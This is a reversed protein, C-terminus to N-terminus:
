PGAVLLLTGESSHDATWGRIGEYDAYWWCLGDKGEPGGAINVVDGQKLYHVSDAADNKGVYGPTRRMRVSAYVVRAPQGVQIGPQCGAAGSAGSEPLSTTPTPIGPAYTPITTPPAQTGGPAIALVVIAGIMGLILLFPAAWSGRSTSQQQRPEQLIVPEGYSIPKKEPDDSM